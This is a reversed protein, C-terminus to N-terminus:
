ASRGPARGRRRGCRAISRVVREAEARPLPPRCRAAFGLVIARVIDPPLGRGLLYGALRACAANRRGLDAGDLLLRSVWRGEIDPPTEVQTRGASGDMADAAGVSPDRRAGPTSSVALLVDLIEDLTPRQEPRVALLSVPRPPAYKWNLSGPLRLVRALDTAAPDGGLANALGRPAEGFRRRSPPEDLPVATRVRWYAHLGRGSHVVASPQAPFRALHRWAQTAGDVDGSADLDIWLCTGRHLGGATGDEGRRPLVGLLIDTGPREVLERAIALAEDPDRAFRNWATKRDLPRLNIREGPHLDDFLLALLPRAREAVAGFPSPPPLPRAGRWRDTRRAIRPGAGADGTGRADM